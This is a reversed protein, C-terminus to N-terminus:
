TPIWGGLRLETFHSSGFPNGNQHAYEDKPTEWWATM